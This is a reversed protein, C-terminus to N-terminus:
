RYCFDEHSPRKASRTEAVQPALVEPKVKHVRASPPVPLPGSTDSQKVDSAAASLLHSIGSKRRGRAVPERVDKARGEDTPATKSEEVTVTFTTPLDLNGRCSDTGCLCINKAGVLGSDLLKAENYDLTLEENESISDLAFLGISFSYNTIFPAFQPPM